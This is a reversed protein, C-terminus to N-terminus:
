KVGGKREYAIKLLHTVEQSPWLYIDALIQEMKSGISFFNGQLLGLICDERGSEKLLRMTELCQGVMDGWTAGVLHTNDAPNVVDYGAERLQKAALNFMPYNYDPLGSMPGSLIVIQAKSM